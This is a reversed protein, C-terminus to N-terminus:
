LPCRQSGTPQGTYLPVERYLVGKPGLQSDQICHSREISSVKPVWNATRYVTSGRWLPCRQSGVPRGTYLPTGLESTSKYVAKHNPSHCTDENSLHGKNLTDKISLNWQVHSVGSRGCWASVGAVHCCVVNHACRLLPQDTTNCTPPNQCTSVTVGM